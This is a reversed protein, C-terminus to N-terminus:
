LNDSTTNIEKILNSVNITLEEINRNTSNIYDLIAESSDVYKQSFNMVIEDYREAINYIKKALSFNEKSIIDGIRLLSPIIVKYQDFTMESIHRIKISEDEFENLNM